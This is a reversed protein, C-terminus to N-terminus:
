ATLMRPECSGILRSEHFLRREPQITPWESMPRLRRQPLDPGVLRLATDSVSRRWPVTPIFSHEDGSHKQYLSKFSPM